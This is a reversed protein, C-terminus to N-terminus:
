HTAELGSTVGQRRSGDSQQLTRGRPLRPPATAGQLLARWWAQAAIYPTHTVPPPGCWSPAQARPQRTAHWRTAHASFAHLPRAAKQLTIAGRLIAARSWKTACIRRCWSGWCGGSQTPRKRHTLCEHLPFYRRMMHMVGVAIIVCCGSLRAKVLIHVKTPSVSTSPILM